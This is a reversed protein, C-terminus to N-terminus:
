RLSGCVNWRGARLRKTVHLQYKKPSLPQKTRHRTQNCFKCAAVINTTSTRGGESAPMLHEATCQFLSAEKHTMSHQQRFEENQGLWMSKKCYYCKGSQAVFKENRIKRLTKSVGTKRMQFILVPQAQREDSCPYITKSRVRTRQWSTTRIFRGRM